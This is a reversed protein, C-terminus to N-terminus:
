LREGAADARPAQGDISPRPPLRSSYISYGDLYRAIITALATAAIMPVILTDATHTLEIVLALAALPTQMAAGIMATAAILAYAGLPSGPWIETWLRGFLLGLVAGASLTPTFLGGTAGSGLCLATAAPKLLALAILLAYTPQGGPVFAWHALDKGNGLIQPYAIAAVGVLTFGLLPAILLARGRARHFAVWGIVRIWGVALLGIVPGAVVAFIVLSTHLTYAPVDTYTPAIPLYVWAVATAIWSCALAPLIVPLTLSGLLLEATLLAGGLPVDYVAGLGAGAGCAVLLRRQPVSLRRWRGAVSGLVGGMLKPAAERGLSAGAGVVAISLVSTGLCRRFSLDGTGTWLEDDLDSSEGATARRLLFWGVGGVLGAIALAAVRRAPSARRTAPGFAGQTYGFALHQVAHLVWLLGAGILGTGVGVAIVLLWVELTLPAHEFAAANPQETAGRGSPLRHGIVPAPSRVRAARDVTRRRIIPM